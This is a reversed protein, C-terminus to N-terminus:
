NRRVSNCQTTTSPVVAKWEAHLCRGFLLPHTTNWEFSKLSVSPLLVFVQRNICRGLPSEKLTFPLRRLESRAYIQWISFCTCWTQHSSRDISIPIGAHFMAIISEMSLVVVGILPILHTRLLRRSKEDEDPSWKVRNSLRSM